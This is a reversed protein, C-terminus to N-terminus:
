RQVQQRGHNAARDAAFRIWKEVDESNRQLESKVSGFESQFPTFFSKAFQFSGQRQLFSIARTCFRVLSAYFMCLSQQLPVSNRYLFEYQGYRPCLRQADMFCTTLEDFFTRFNCAAVIFVKM